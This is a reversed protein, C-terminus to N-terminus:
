VELVEIGHTYLMLKRKKKWRRKRRNNAQEKRTAWRCNEPWYGKDNEKRDITLDERYGNAIAWAYFSQFNSKWEDCVAIGRGGYEEFAPNSRSCCRAIMGRWIHYLRSESQGHTTKKEAWYESRYCGCSTSEGKRLVTSRVAIENGCDCKCLWRANTCGPQPKAKQIVTLRGFRQGTLDILHSM